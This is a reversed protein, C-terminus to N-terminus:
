GWSFLTMFANRWSTVAVNITGAENISADHEDDAGDESSGSNVSGPTATAVWSSPEPTWVLAIV